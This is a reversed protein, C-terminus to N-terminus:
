RELEFEVPIGIWVRVKQDGQQAPTFKLQYGAAVAATDLAANGSGKAVVVNMVTGNTDLLLQLYVRGEIGLLKASEPYDPNKWYILQPNVNHPVYTGLAPIGTEVKVQVETGDPVRNLPSSDVLDNQASMTQNVARPDPVPKPIGVAPVKSSSGTTPTIADGTLSPPAGLQAYSFTVIRPEAGGAGRSQFVGKGNVYGVAILLVLTILGVTTYYARKLNDPYTLRWHM